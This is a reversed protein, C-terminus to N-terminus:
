PMGPQIARAGPANDMAAGQWRNPSAQRCATRLTSGLREAVTDASASLEDPLPPLRNISVLRRASGFALKNDGEWRMALSRHREDTRIEAGLKGLDPPLPRAKSGDRSGEIDIGRLAVAAGHHLSPAPTARSRGPPGCHRRTVNM